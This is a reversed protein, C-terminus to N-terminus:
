SMVFFNTVDEDKSGACGAEHGGDSCALTAAADQDEIMGIADALLDEDGAAAAAIEGVDVAGRVTEEGGIRVEGAGREGAVCRAIEDCEDLPMANGIVLLGEALEEAVAGSAVDDGHEFCFAAGGANADEEILLDCRNAMGIAKDNLGCCCVVARLREDNSGAAEGDWLHACGVEGIANGCLEAKGDLCRTGCQNREGPLRLVTDVVRVQGPEGSLHDRRLALRAKALLQEEGM